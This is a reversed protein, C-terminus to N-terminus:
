RGVETVTFPSPVLVPCPRTPTLDARPDGARLRSGALRAHFRTLAQYAIDAGVCAHRGLGFPLFRGAEVRQGSWRDPRFRDPEAHYDPRRHILYPSVYVLEGADVPGVTLRAPESVEREILWAPPHLRLSERVVARPDAGGTVLDPESLADVLLWACGASVPSVLATAVRMTLLAALREVPPATTGDGALRRVLDVAEAALDSTPDGTLERALRDLLRDRRRLM